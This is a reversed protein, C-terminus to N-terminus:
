QIIRLFVPLDTTPPEVSMQYLVGEIHGRHYSAHNVVHQIIESRKMQGDGGGIFKFRVIEQHKESPLEAAYNEFWENIKEQGQQLETLSISHTPNRTQLNHPIGLLHSKWVFDMAYVHNLLSFINGFLMARDRHIEEEPLNSIAEYFVRDAWAKYQALMELNM